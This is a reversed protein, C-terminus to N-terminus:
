KYFASIGLCFYYFVCLLGIYFFPVSLSHFLEIHKFDLRKKVIIYYFIFASFSHPCNYYGKV